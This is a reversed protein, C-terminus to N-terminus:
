MDYRVSNPEDISVAESLAHYQRFAFFICSACLASEALALVQAARNDAHLILFVIMGILLVGNVILASLLMGKQQVLYKDHEAYELPRSKFVLLLARAFSLGLPLLLGVYPILVYIPSPGGGAGLASSDSFGILVYLILAAFLCLVYVAKRRNLAPQEIQIRYHKGKYHVTSGIREYDKAYDRTRQFM